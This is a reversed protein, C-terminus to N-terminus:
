CSEKIKNEIRKKVEKAIDVTKMDKYEEYTIPPLYSISVTVRKISHNDFVKYSDMIAVPVIPAKAKVASKFSGGKFPLLNNKDRSRTGEAFIVYNRGSRVEQIVNIILKMSQKIDGRDIMKVDLVSLIKRLPRVKDIEKKIVFTIPKDCTDIMVLADFLGQHNPFMVFGNEEPINELGECHIDVNASKNISKVIDRVINYKESETYSSSDYKCLKRHWFPVRYFKKLILMIIREM